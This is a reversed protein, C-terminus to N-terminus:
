EVTRDGPILSIMTSRNGSVRVARRLTADFVVPDQFEVYRCADPPLGHEVALLRRAARLATPWVVLAAVVGTAGVGLVIWGGTPEDIGVFALGLLVLIASLLLVLPSLWVKVLQRLVPRSLRGEWRGLFTQRPDSAVPVAVAARWRRMSPRRLLALPVGAAVLVAVAVLASTASREVLSDVLGWVGALATLVLGTRLMAARAKRWLARAGLVLIAALWVLWYGLSIVGRVALKDDWPRVSQMGLVVVAVAAAVVAAALLVASCVVLAVAAPRRPREDAVPMM